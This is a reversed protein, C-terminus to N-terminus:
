SSKRKNGCCGGSVVDIRRKTNRKTIKKVTNGTKNLKRIIRNRLDRM